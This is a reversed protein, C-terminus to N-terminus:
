SLGHWFRRACERKRDADSLGIDRLGHTDLEALQRRTRVGWYWGSLRNLTIRLLM